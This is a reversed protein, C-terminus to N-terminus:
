ASAGMLGFRKGLSRLEAHSLYRFSQPPRFDRFVSKPTIAQAPANIQGLLVGYARQKGVFYEMLAKRTLGPGQPKCVTWIKAPSDVVVKKVEIMGVVKQVPSSSYIVLLGVPEKAWSRRFEVRKTGAMIQDAFRPRVSLLVAKAGQLELCEQFRLM